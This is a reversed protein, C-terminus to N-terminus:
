IQWTSEEGEPSRHRARPSGGGVITGSVTPFMAPLPVENGLTSRDQEPSVVGDMRPRPGLRTDNSAHRDRPRPRSLVSAATAISFLGAVALWAAAHHVHVDGFPKSAFSTYFLVAALGNYLSWTLTLHRSTAWLIGSMIIWVLSAPIHGGASVTIAAIMM